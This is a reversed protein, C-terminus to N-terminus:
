DSNAHKTRKFFVWIGKPIAFKKGFEVGIVSIVFVEISEILLVTKFKMRCMIDLVRNVM